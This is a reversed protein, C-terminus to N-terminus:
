AIGDISEIELLETDFIAKQIEHDRTLQDLDDYLSDVRNQVSSITKSIESIKRGDCLRSAELMETSANAMIAEQTEIDKEVSAIKSELPKLAKSRRTIIESRIKRAEKKSQRTSPATKESSSSMSKEDSWGVKELFYSYGGDFVSVHDDQFVILRDALAHLFM